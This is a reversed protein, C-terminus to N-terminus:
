KGVVQVGHVDSRGIDIPFGGGADVVVHVGLRETWAMASLFRRLCAAAAARADATDPEYQIVTTPYLTQSGPRLTITSGEFQMNTDETPWAVSTELAFVIYPM